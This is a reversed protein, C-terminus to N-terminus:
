GHLLFITPTKNLEPLKQKWERITQTIIMEDPSTLQSAICLDTEYHCNQIILELLGQNRYPAEIFIQTQDDISSRKELENIKQIRARKEIPLYGNFCFHQGCLGSAMLALLISSPGVIPIIPINKDHALRVLESGPDAIAPCGAESLLGVDIGSFLPLLLRELDNAPTHEDLIEMHIKQLPLNCEIRKLFQRATKPHEVIYHTLPAIMQKVASPIIWDIDCSGIPTPILYLKGKM